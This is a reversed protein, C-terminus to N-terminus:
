KQELCRVDAAAVALPVLSTGMFTMGNARLLDATKSTTLTIHRITEGRQVVLDLRQRTQTCFLSEVETPAKGTITAGNVELIRDGWHLGARAGPGPEIGGVAVESPEKLLFLEFAGSYCDTNSPYHLPFVRSVIRSGDFSEIAAVEATTANSPVVHGRDEKYGTQAIVASRPEREISVQYRQLGRSMALRVMGPAESRIKLSAERADMQQTPTGDIAVLHDGVKVGAREAPSGHFLSWVIMPCGGGGRVTMGIVYPDSEAGAVASALAGWFAVAAVPALQNM